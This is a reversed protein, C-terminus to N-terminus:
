MVCSASSTSSSPRGAYTSSTTVALGVHPGAEASASCGASVASVVDPSVRSTMLLRGRHKADAHSCASFRQAHRRSWRKKAAPRPHGRWSQGACRPVARCPSEDVPPTCGRNPVRV